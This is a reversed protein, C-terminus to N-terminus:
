APSCEIHAALHYHNSMVAYAVIDIAFVQALGKMREAIWGRRHDYNQGTLRDEGCLFARRM